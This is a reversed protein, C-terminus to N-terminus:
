FFFWNSVDFKKVPSRINIMQKKNNFIEIFFGLTKRETNPSTSLVEHRMVMICNCLLDSTEMYLRLAAIIGLKICLNTKQLPKQIHLVDSTRTSDINNSSSKHYNIPSDM